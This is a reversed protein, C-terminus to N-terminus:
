ASRGLGNIDVLLDPHMVGARVLDVENTGGALFASAPDASVVAIAEDVSGARTYSLPRM